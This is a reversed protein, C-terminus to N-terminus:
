ASLSRFHTMLKVGQKIIIESEEYTAECISKLKSERWAWCSWVIWRHAASAADYM